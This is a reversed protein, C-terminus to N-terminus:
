YSYNVQVYLCQGFEQKVTTLISNCNLCTGEAFNDVISQAFNSFDSKLSLHTSIIEDEKIDATKCNDCRREERYSFTGQLLRRAIANVTFQCDLDKSDLAEEEEQETQPSLLPALIEARRKNITRM